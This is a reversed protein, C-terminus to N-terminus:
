SSLFLRPRWSLTMQSFLDGSLATKVMSLCKSESLSELNVGVEYFVVSGPFARSM